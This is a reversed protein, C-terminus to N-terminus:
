SIPLLRRRVRGDEVTVIAGSPVDGELSPLVAQLLANVREVRSSSLRLSIVSPVTKGSLAVIASFDLDQTLIGRRERVATAVIAEDTATPPLLESVRVVDHGLSRLFTVTRPAVHMDALLRM